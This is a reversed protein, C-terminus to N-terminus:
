LGFRHICWWALLILLAFPLLRRLLVALATGIKRLLNQYPSRRIAKIVRKSTDVPVAATPDQRLRENEEHLERSEDALADQLMQALLADEYDDQRNKDRM